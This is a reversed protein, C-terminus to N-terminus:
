VFFRVQLFRWVRRLLLSGIREKGADITAYGVMHERLLGEANDIESVVRLVRDEGDQSVATAIFDVKGLFPHLPYSEIKVVTPQGIRMSDIEREPVLIEMRVRRADALECFTGGVVIREHLHEKLKPTMVVGDIQSRIELLKFRKEQRALEAQARSLEAQAATVDEPRFGSEVLRLDADAQQLATGRLELERRATDVEADSGVGEAALRTKREANLKAFRLDHARAAVLARARRKDEPRAGRRLKALSATIRDVEARAQAVAARVDADDLHALLDGSHVQSGEDVLIQDILGEEEARAAMRQLPSVACEGTLHLRYPCLMVATIGVCVAGLFAMRRVIPRTNWRVVPPVWAELPAPEPESPPEPPAPPPLDPATASRGELEAVLQKRFTGFDLPVADSPMTSGGPRLQADPDPAPHILLGLSACHLVLKEVMDRTVWRVHKRARRTIEDLDRNGDMERAIQCEFDYLERRRDEEDAIVVISPSAGRFFRLSPRLCPAYGPGRVIELHSLGASGM